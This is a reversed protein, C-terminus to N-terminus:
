EKEAHWYVEEKISEKPFGARKLLGKMNEIMNPNGCVYATTNEPGFDFADLYKRAVDEVRGREGRWSAELWPRSITPIYRLWDHTAELRELEERYGLEVSVSAGQLIALQHQPPGGVVARHRVMSVYPAVGTVTAVLFHNPHGSTTDLLFRGKAARRLFVEGGVPVRYLQPTLQGEPVLELFFELEEEEPSSVVSYPREVMRTPGPLGVTVYQGPQFVIKEAPRVRIIWLEPTLERRQVVHGLVYKAADLTLTSHSM